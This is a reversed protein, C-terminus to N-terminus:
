RRAQARSAPQALEDSLVALDGPDYPPALGLVVEDVGAAFLGELVSHNHEPDALLVRGRAEGAEIGNRDAVAAILGQQRGPDASLEAFVYASRALATSPRGAAALLGDLERNLAPWGAAPAFGNFLDAHRAAARKVKAGSGGVLVPIAGGDQYAKPEFLAENVAYHEGQYSPAETDALLLHFLELAEDLRKVREGAPFFEIGFMQHEEQHWGAGLGLIARGQSVHDLTVAMKALLAPPRLTVDSVLTGIRLRSTVAALATAALWGDLQSGVRRGTPRYTPSEGPLLPILHDFTYGAHCGLDDAAQWFDRLQAFSTSQPPTQISIRRM